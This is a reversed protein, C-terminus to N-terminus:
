YVTEPSLVAAPWMGWWAVHGVNQEKRVARAKIGTKSRSKNPHTRELAACIDFGETSPLHSTWPPVHAEFAWSVAIEGTEKEMKEKRQYKWGPALALEL